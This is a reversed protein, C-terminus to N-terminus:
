SFRRASILGYASISGATFTARAVMYYTTTSGPAVRVPGVTMSDASTGGSTNPQNRFNWTGVDSSVTNTSTSISAVLQTFTSSSHAFSINASVEWEGATLSLSTVTLATLTSLGLASGSPVSSSMYQTSIPASLCQFRTGDYEIDQMVATATTGVALATFAGDRNTVSKVGLGSVNVTVAGTNAGAALFQFRQGAVYATIAPSPTLTIADVTGGVTAVYHPGNDQVQAFSPPSTRASANAINTLTFGGMPINGTATNGGDKKLTANIGDKLDTDHTDHGSTVIKVGAAHAQTWTTDGTRTGDSRTFSQNPAVGSWPM